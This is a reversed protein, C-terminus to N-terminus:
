IRFIQHSILLEKGWPRPPPPIHKTLQHNSNFVGNKKFGYKISEFESFCLQISTQYQNHFDLKIQIVDVEDNCCGKDKITKKKCCPPLTEEQHEDCHDSQEIFYSRFVGDKKCTHTFISFGVNGLFTFAIFLFLITTRLFNV